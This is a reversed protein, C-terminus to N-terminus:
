SQWEALIKCDKVWGTQSATITDVISPTVAPWLPEDGHGEFLGCKTQYDFTGM